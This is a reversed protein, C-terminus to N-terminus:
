ANARKPGPRPMTLLTYQFIGPLCDDCIAVVLYDMAYMRVCRKTHCVSCEGANAPFLNSDGSLMGRVEALDLM